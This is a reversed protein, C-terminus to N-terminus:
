KQKCASLCEQAIYSSEHHSQLTPVDYSEKESKFLAVVCKMNTTKLSIDECANPPNGRFKIFVIIDGDLHVTVLNVDLAVILDFHKSVCYNSKCSFVQLGLLM